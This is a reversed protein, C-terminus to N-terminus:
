ILPQECKWVQKRCPPPPIPVAEEDHQHVPIVEPSNKGISVHDIVDDNHELFVDNVPSLNIAILQEDCTGTPCSIVSPRRPSLTPLLPVVPILPAVEYSMDILLDTTPSSETTPPSPSSAPNQYILTDQGLPLSKSISTSSEDSINISKMVELDSQM